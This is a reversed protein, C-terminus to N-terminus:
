ATARARAGDAARAHEAIADIIRPWAGRPLDHGMGEIMMLRAGPIAKATARGGSPRVMKDVTGHIVLTPAGITGLKATRNGSALIAGLQRGGARVDYARDYSRAARERIYQEDRPFGTSGVLGFVAAAREIYGERDRPPPQLLYRYVSYHPQGHFRSGTTSMISTLSRVAEPHEAALMQAIMGGMSAGVVHAPSIGLERLLIAADEAMDSLTYQEPGFRRRVLQGVSPPQFDLHTSRGIDRNDFRVVHFGRDALQECFEDHWAIMQTALGMVLLVPPDDRDGFTEYCLTIGRGVECFEESVKGISTPAQL